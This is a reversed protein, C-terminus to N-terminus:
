LFFAETTKFNNYNINIRQGKFKSLINQEEKFAEIVTTKREFIIDMNLENKIKRTFRKNAGFM